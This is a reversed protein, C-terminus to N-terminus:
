QILFMLWLCTMLLCFFPNSPVFTRFGIYSPSSKDPQRMGQSPEGRKKEPGWGQKIYKWQHTPEFLAELDSVLYRYLRVKSLLRTHGASQSRPGMVLLSNLRKRATTGDVHQQAGRVAGQWRGKGDYLAPNRGKIVAENSCPYVSGSLDVGCTDLVGGNWHFAQDMWPCRMDVGQLPPMRATRDEAFRARKDASGRPISSSSHDDVRAPEYAAARHFGPELRHDDAHGSWIHIYFYCCCCFKASWSEARASSIGEHVSCIFRLTDEGTRGDMIRTRTWKGGHQLGGPMCRPWPSSPVGFPTMEPVYYSWIRTVMVTQRHFTSCPLNGWLCSRTRRAEGRADTRPPVGEAHHCDIGVRGAAPLYEGRRWTLEATKRNIPINSWEGMWPHNWQSIFHQAHDAGSREAGGPMRPSVDETHRSYEVVAWAVGHWPDIPIDNERNGRGDGVKKETGGPTTAAVRFRGATRTLDRDLHYREESRTTTNVQRLLVAPLVYVASFSFSTQQLLCTLAQRKIRLIWGCYASHFCSFLKVLFTNLGM